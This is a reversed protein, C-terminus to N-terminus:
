QMRWRSPVSLIMGVQIINPIQSIININEHYLEFWDEGGKNSLKKSISWLTDGTRVTYNAGAPPKNDYRPPAPKLVKTTDM